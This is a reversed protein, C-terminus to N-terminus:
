PIQVVAPASASRPQVFIFAPAGNRNANYGISSKYLFQRISSPYCGPDNNVSPITTTGSSLAVQIQAWGSADPSFFCRANAVYMNATGAYVAAANSLEPDPGNNVSGAIGNFQDPTITNQYNTSGPFYTSDGFRNQITVGIAPESVNDGIQAQGNAEGYLVQILIQPPVVIQTFVGSTQAGVAAQANFIGSCGAPAATVTTNVSGTGGNASFGPSVACPPPTSTPPNGQLGWAFVPSFSYASPTVTTTITTNTDGTSLNLTSPSQSVTISPPPPPPPGVWFNAAAASVNGILIAIWTGFSYNPWVTVSGQILSDSVVSVSSSEFPATSSFTVSQGTFGSGSIAFTYSNGSYWPSGSTSVGTVVPEPEMVVVCSASGVYVSAYTPSTIGSDVQVWGQASSDSMVSLSSSDVFSGTIWASQGTFGSGSVSVSNYGPCWPGGCSFIVPQPEAWVSWYPIKLRHQCLRPSPVNWRPSLVPLPSFRSPSFRSLSFRSSFRSPRSTEM